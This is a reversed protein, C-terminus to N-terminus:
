NILLMKLCSLFCMQKFTLKKSLCAENMTKIANRHTGLKVFSCQMPIYRPLHAKFLSHSQQSGRVKRHCSLRTVFPQTQLWKWYRNVVAKLWSWSPFMLTWSERGRSCSIRLLYWLYCVCLQVIIGFMDNEYMHYNWCLWDLISCICFCFLLCLILWNM